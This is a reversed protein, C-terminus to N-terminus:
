EHDIVWAHIGSGLVYSVVHRQREVVVQKSGAVASGGVSQTASVCEGGSGSLVAVSAGLSLVTSTHRSAM